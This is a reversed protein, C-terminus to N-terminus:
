NYTFEVEDVVNGGTSTNRLTLVVSEIDGDADSVAWGVDFHADGDSTEVETISLTDVSPAQGDPDGPGTAGETARATASASRGGADNATVMVEFTAGSGNAGPAMLTTSSSATGGSVDMSVSDVTAGADLDTLVVDVSALDGDPDSVAWDAVFEADTGDTDSETLSVTDVAPSSAGGGGDGPEEGSTSSIAFLVGALAIVGGLVQERNPM